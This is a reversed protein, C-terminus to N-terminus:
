ADSEVEGKEKPLFAYSLGPLSGYELVSAELFPLHSRSVICGLVMQMVRGASGWKAQRYVRSEACVFCYITYLVSTHHM